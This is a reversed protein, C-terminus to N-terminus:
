RTSLDYKSLLSWSAGDTPLDERIAASMFSTDTRSSIASLDSSGEHRSEMVIGDGEGGASGFLLGCIKPWHVALGFDRQNGGGIDDLLQLCINEWDRRDSLAEPRGPQGTFSYM